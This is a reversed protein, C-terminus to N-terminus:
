GPVLWAWLALSALMAAGMATVRYAARVQKAGASLLSDLNPKVVRVPPEAPGGLVLTGRAERYGQGQAKTEDRRAVGLVEVEDGAKVTTLKTLAGVKDKPSGKRQALEALITLAKPTVFKRLRDQAPWALMAYTEGGEVLAGTVKIDARVGREDELEFDQGRAIDVVVKARNQVVLRALVVAVGHVPDHVRPEPSRVVRGRIRVATGEEAQDFERLLHSRSLRRLRSNGFYGAILIGIGLSVITVATALLIGFWDIM